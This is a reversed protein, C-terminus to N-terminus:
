NALTALLSNVEKAIPLFTKRLNNFVDDSSRDAGENEETVVAEMWARVADRFEYVKHDAPLEGSYTCCFMKELEDLFCEGAALFIDIGRNEHVKDLASALKNRMSPVLALKLIVLFMEMRVDPKACLLLHQRLKGYDVIGMVKEARSYEGKLIWHKAMLFRILPFEDACDYLIRKAIESADSPPPAWGNKERKLLRLIDDYPMVAQSVGSVPHLTEEPCNELEALKVPSSWAKSKVICEGNSLRQLDPWDKERIGMATGIAKVEDGDEQRFVLKTNANTIVADSLNKPSQDVVMVGIGLARGEMMLRGVQEILRKGKGAERESREQEFKRHLVNHAEEIVLLVPPHAARYREVEQNKGAKQLREIEALVLMRYARLRHLVLSTIFAPMNIESPPMEEMEIIIDQALLDAFDYDGDFAFIDQYVDDIFIRARNLLSGKYNARVEPGYDNLTECVKKVAINFDIITPYVPAGEANFRGNEIDWGCDVYCKEAAERLKPGILAEMPLLESLADSLVSIHQKLSTGLDFHFPNLRFPFVRSDGLTYVRPSQGGRHLLNRYTKKATELVIIRHGDVPISNLISAARMTKGSGTTGVLLLHSYLDKSSLSFIGRAADKTEEDLENTITRKSFALTGIKITQLEEAKKEDPRGYFVSRRMELGPLEADPLLLLRGAQECDLPELFVGGKALLAHTALRRNLQFMCGEGMFPLIQMPRLHSHRGSLVASVTKGIRRSADRDEAYIMACGYFGGSGLAVQLHKMGADLTQDLYDLLTNMQSFSESDGEQRTDTHSTGNSVTSGNNTSEASKPNFFTGKESSGWLSQWFRVFGCRQETESIGESTGTSQQTGEAISVSRNIGLERKIWPSIEDRLFAKSRFHAQLEMPTAKALSFVIAFNEEESLTEMVDNLSAFPRKEEDRDTILREGDIEKPSPVGAVCTVQRGWTKSAMELKEVVKEPSLLTMRSEPFSRRAMADALVTLRKHRRIPEDPSIKADLTDTGFKLGFYLSCKGGHKEAMWLLEEGQELQPLLNEWDYPRPFKDRHGLVTIEALLTDALGPNTIMAPDSGAMEKSIEGEELFEQPTSMLEWRGMALTRTDTLVRELKVPESM